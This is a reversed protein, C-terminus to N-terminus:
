NVASSFGAYTFEASPYIFPSAPAVGGYGRGAIWEPVSDFSFNPANAAAQRAALIKDIAQATVLRVKDQSGTLKMAIHAGLAFGVAAQLDADWLSVQTQRKTYCLIAGEDNSYLVRQDAENIGLEFRSYTTLFRPWLFDAPLFYAFRWGPAPDTNVWAAEGTREANVSLRRYKRACDWPASRLIQDRVSEYWLVCNAAEDSAESTAQVRSRTGVAALAWNFITVESASM